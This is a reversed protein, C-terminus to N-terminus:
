IGAASLWNDVAVLRGTSALTLYLTLGDPSVTVNTTMPDEAPIAGLLEGDPSFITVGGTGLTAVLVRGDPDTSVGDAGGINLAGGSPVTALGRARRIEGPGTLEFEWVRRTRTEALYLRTGDPSLAIGNPMELPYVIERLDGDPTGYLLGTMIRERGRTTGGDTVYFGGHKDVCVDSPRVLPRNTGSRTRFTTTLETVTGDRAVIQLGPSVAHDPPGVPRFVEVSGDFEYPWAGLGFRSGGNQCVVLGGDPLRGLGNPGGGTLAFTETSGDPCVRTIRGAAMESVLVSGDDSVVPGEPFALGDALVRVTNMLDDAQEAM